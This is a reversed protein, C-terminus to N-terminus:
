RQYMQILVEKTIEFPYNKRKKDDKMLDDATKQLLEEGIEETGLMGHMYKSFAQVGAFGLTEMVESVANKDEYTNVYGALFLGVARGHPINREYTLAYSLGHPFSTGTHAIAMGAWSSARLLKEYDGEQLADLLLREKFDAFM